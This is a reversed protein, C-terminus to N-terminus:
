KRLLMAMGSIRNASHGNGPALLGLAESGHDNVFAAAPWSFV